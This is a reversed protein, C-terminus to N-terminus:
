AFKMIIASGFFIFATGIWFWINLSGGFLLLTFLSVFLPYSIEIVSALPAGLNKISSLIFFNAILVLVEGLIILQWITKGSSFIQKISDWQFIIIPLTIIATVISGIFLFVLPTANALVRQNIAYVLGWTIAAAIAYIFGTLNM